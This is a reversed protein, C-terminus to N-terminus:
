LERGVVLAVLVFALGMMAYTFVKNRKGHRIMWIGACIGVVGFVVILIGLSVAYRALEATGEWRADSFRVWLAIAAIMAVLLGGTAVSMWGLKRIKRSSLMKGGCQACFNVTLDTTQYDCKPCGTFEEM